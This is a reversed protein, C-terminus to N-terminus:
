PPLQRFSLSCKGPLSMQERGTCSLSLHLQLKARGHVSNLPQVCTDTRDGHPQLAMSPATDLPLVISISVLLVCAWIFPHSSSESSDINCYFIPLMDNETFGVHDHERQM